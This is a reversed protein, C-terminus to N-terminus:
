CVTCFNTLDFCLIKPFNQCDKLMWDSYGWFAVCAECVPKWLAEISSEVNSQKRGSFCNGCGYVTVAEVMEGNDFTKFHYSFLKIFLSQHIFLVCFLDLNIFFVMFFSHYYFPIDECDVVVWGHICDHSNPKEDLWYALLFRVQKRM